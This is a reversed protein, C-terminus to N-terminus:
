RRRSAQINRTSWRRRRDRRICTSRRMSRKPASSSRGSRNTTSTVAASTATSCRAAFASSVSAASSSSPPGTRCSRRCRPLAPLATLINAQVAGHSLFDNSARALRLASEAPELQENGPANLSLVQMDIGAACGIEAIRGTVSTALSHSSRRAASPRGEVPPAEKLQRGPGDLFGPPTFHEEVTITRM